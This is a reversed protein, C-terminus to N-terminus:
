RTTAARASSPATADRSMLAGGRLHLRRRRRLPAPAAAGALRDAAPPPRRERGRRPRGRRAAPFTPTSTRPWATPSDIPPTSSSSTSAEGGAAPRFGALWRGVDARVLEAREALGLREVNGLAPRTDRDVLVARPPAARSRRSRWRGPAATSTSSTPARSGSASRRSSRRASATPPRGCRGARRRSWRAPGELEGAIVRM